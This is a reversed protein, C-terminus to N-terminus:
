KPTLLFAHSLSGQQGQCLIQGNNNIRYAYTLTWGTLIHSLDTVKGGTYLYAGTSTGRAGGVVDGHNNICYPTNDNGPINLNTLTGNSWVYSVTSGGNVSKTGVVTGADNMWLGQFNGNTGIQIPSSSSNWLWCGGGQNLNLLVTGSVNICNAFGYGGSHIVDTLDQEVGNQWMVPRNTLGLTPDSIQISGAIDGNDNIMTPSAGYAYPAAYSLQTPIGRSFMFPVQGAAPSQAHGVITGDNNISTAESFPPQGNGYGFTGLDSLAGNQWLFGHLGVSQLSSSGVVQGKDNLSLGNCGEGGLTGLDVISYQGGSGSVTVPVSATLDKGGSGTKVSATLTAAGISKGIVGITSGSGSISAIGIPSITWTVDSGAFTNILVVSGSTDFASVSITLSDGVTLNLTGPAAQVRTITSDLTMDVHGIQGVTLIIPLSQGEAQPADSCDVTGYASVKFVIEDPPLGDLLTTTTNTGSSPRLAIRSELPKTFLFDNFRFATIKIARASAPIFRANSRPWKIGIQVTRTSSAISPESRNGGCSSIIVVAAVLVLPRLCNFLITQVQRITMPSRGRLLQM